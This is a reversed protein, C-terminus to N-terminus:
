SSPNDSALAIVADAFPREGAAADPLSAARVTSLLPTLDDEASAEGLLLVFSIAGDEAELRRLDYATDAPLQALLARSDAKAQSEQDAGAWSAARVVYTEGNGAFLSGLLWVLGGLVLVAAVLPVWPPLPRRSQSPARPPSPTGPNGPAEKHSEQRRLVDLLEPKKPSM